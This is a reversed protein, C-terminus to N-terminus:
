HDYMSTPKHNLTALSTFCSGGVKHNLSISVFSQFVQNQNSMWVAIAHNTYLLYARAPASIVLYTKPLLPHLAASHPDTLIISYFSRLSGVHM